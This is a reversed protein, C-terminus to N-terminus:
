TPLTAVMRLYGSRPAPEGFPKFNFDAYLRIAGANKPHVFLGIVKLGSPHDMAKRLLDTFIQRSYRRPKNEKGPPQGQFPLAIAYNPIILLRRKDSKEPDPYRWKTVGLSGFGVLDGEETEYLWVQTDLDEM